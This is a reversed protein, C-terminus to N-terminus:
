SGKRSQSRAPPPSSAPLTRSVLARRTRDPRRFLLLHTVGLDKSSLVYGPAVPGNGGDPHAKGPSRERRPSARPTLKERWAKWRTKRETAPFVTRPKMRRTRPFVAPAEGDSVAPESAILEARRPVLQDPLPDRPVAVRRVVLHALLDVEVFWLYVRLALEDRVEALRRLRQLDEDV